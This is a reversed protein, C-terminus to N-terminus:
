LRKGLHEEIWASDPEQGVMHCLYRYMYVCMQILFDEVKTWFDQM